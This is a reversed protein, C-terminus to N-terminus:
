RVEAEQGATEKGTPASREEQGRPMGREGSGRGHTRAADRPTAHYSMAHPLSARTVQDLFSKATPAPQPPRWECHALVLREKPGDLWPM